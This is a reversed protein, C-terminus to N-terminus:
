SRASPCAATRSWWGASPASPPRQTTPPRTTPSARARAGSPRPPAARRPAFSTAGSGPRGCSCTRPGSGSSAGRSPTEGADRGAALTRRVAAAALASSVTWFMGHGSLPDIAASADGVPLVSLDDPVGSLLPSSERVLVGDSEPRFGEPLWAACQALSRALRAAPRAQHPDAADLTVQLWARGGGMGAFWAWGADFPLVVTQPPTSPPGALWAGLSVTAPGRRVPRRAAGRRGRADLVLAAALREGSGLVAAGPEPTAVGTIVQAGARAAAARLAHDFAPRAVLLEHNGGHMTGSWLSRRPAPVPQLAGAELMGSRGLWAHLRPSMGEIRDPAEDPDVLVVQAGDRAALWASVAGAPGGGIVVLDATQGM